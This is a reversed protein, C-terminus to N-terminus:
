QKRLKEIDPYKRKLSRALLPHGVGGLVFSIGIMVPYIWENRSSGMATNMGFSLLSFLSVWVASFVSGFFVLATPSALAPPHVPIGVRWCLRYPFRGIEERTLGIARLSEVETDIVEQRNM